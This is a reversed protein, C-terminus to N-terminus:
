TIGRAIQARSRLFQDAQVASHLYMHVIKTTNGGGNSQPASSAHASPSSQPAITVGTPTTQGAPKIEVTEGKTAMFKVPTTDTGGDGGVTFSGGTAFNGSSTYDAGGSAMYQNAVDGVSSGGAGYGGSSYDSGGSGMYQSAVDSGSPFYNPDSFPSYQGEYQASLAELASPYNGGGASYPDYYNSDYPQLYSSGEGPGPYASYPDFYDMPVSQRIGNTNAGGLDNLRGQSNIHFASGDLFRTSTYYQGDNSNQGSGFLAQMIAASQPDYSAGPRYNPNVPVTSAPNVPRQNVPNQWPFTNSGQFGRVTAGMGQTVAQNYGLNGYYSAADIAQAKADAALGKQRADELPSISGKTSFGGAGGSTTPTTIFGTGFQGTTTTATATSATGASGSSIPLGTSQNVATSGAGGGILRDLANVIDNNGTAIQKTIDISSQAIADTIQTIMSQSAPDPTTSIVGSAPQNQITTLGQIGGSSSGPNAPQAAVQDPTNVTVVEGPTAKFKVIQSDTGGTGTVTLQGGSAFAPLNSLYDSVGSYDPLATSTATTSGGGSSTSDGAAQIQGGAGGMVNGLADTSGPDGGAQIGGANGGGGKGIQSLANVATQAGSVAASVVKGIEAIAGNAWATLATLGQTPLNGITTLLTIFAKDVDDTHTAVMDLPHQLDILLQKIANGAGAKALEELLDHAANKVERLAQDFTQPKNPDFAADIAPKVLAMRQVFQDITIPTKRLQTIFDTVKQYGFANAIALATGPSEAQVAKFAAVSLKGTNQFSTTLADLGKKEEDANASNTQMMTGVTQLSSILEANRKASNEVTNAYIVHKDAFTDMGIKAKEFAGELTSAEIGTAKAAAKIADFAKAGASTSGTIGALRSKTRDVEDGLKALAVLAAGGAAFALGELGLRAAASYERLGGISGGLEKIVPALGHMTERLTTAIANHAAHEATAAKSAGALATLGPAAAGAEKAIAGIATGGAAAATALRATEANFAATRTQFDSVSIGARKAAAEIAGIPGVYATAASASSSLASSTKAASANFDDVSKGTKDAQSGLDSLKQKAADLQTSDVAFGLSAVEDAM